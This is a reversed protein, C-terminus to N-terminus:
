SAPSGARRGVRARIPRRAPIWTPCGRCVSSGRTTAPPTRFAPATTTRKAGTIPNSSTDLLLTCGAGGGASIGLVILVLVAPGLQRMRDPVIGRLGDGKAENTHRQPSLRASRGRGCFSAHNRPPVDRAPGHCIGRSVELGHSRAGPCGDPEEGCGRQQSTARGADARGRAGAAVVAASRVNRHAHVRRHDAVHLRRDVDGDRCGVSGRARGDRARRGAALIAAHDAVAAVLRLIAARAGARALHARAADADLSRAARAPGAGSRAAGTVAALTPVPQPSASSQPAQGAPAVHLLSPTQTGAFQVGAPQSMGPPPPLYQPRIPSPQPLVISQPQAAGCDHPPVPIAFTQPSGFQTGIM